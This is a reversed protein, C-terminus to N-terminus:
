NKQLFRLYNFDRVNAFIMMEYLKKGSAKQNATIKYSSYSIFLSFGDVVIHGQKDIVAKAEDVSAYKM